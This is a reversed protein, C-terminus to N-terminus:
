SRDAHTKSSSLGYLCNESLVAVVFQGASSTQDDGADAEDGSLFLMEVRGAAPFLRGRDPPVLRDLDSGRRGHKVSM